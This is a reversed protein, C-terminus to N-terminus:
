EYIEYVTENLVFQVNRGLSMWALAKPNAKLFAFYEPSDFQIRVRKATPKKQVQTDIWQNNNLFFARGGVFRNQATMGQAPKGALEAVRLSAVGPAIALSRGAAPAAPAAALSRGAEEAGLQIDALGDASKLRYLSRAGDVARDGTRERAFSDYAALYEQQARVQNEFHFTQVNQALGRRQEDEMILYTTYPTVIGYKRALETVEEKLEKNEGRLRIEDLLYGVRRTAWLRPIFEHDSAEGPFNADYAFSKSEGDVSGELRIAGSGKASYRGVVVLQEGKFVDPITSPYIRTVRVSEPFLLKPSALVPEKIKTFFSSVKVEIDEQPLVYQSFARTEEAVRDLLHTNVDTGIGFCFVRTNEKNAKEVNQIIQAEDTVGVTPRGDTLFVIVCPRDSKEPRIELAKRLADDIATGGIPKLEDIWKKARSRNDPTADSLKSYLSEVETAFRLVDFRDGASLNEVCFLLAKKAQELKAGAMSGSTDLVFVVDKPIVKTDKIEAGPSALLVFYGDEGGEKFSMLHLGIDSKDLDYFLQFDADPKVDSAEFGITAENGGRRKIEVKHSPSYVSKLPQKTELDIKLSLNKIPKASFKETNLPLVFNVLGSDSKLLQSYSLLIRKKSHPEIPFIRVKFLDRGAFELLAPDKLKRVIDEYIGRAKDAALLEAEVQKGNIEMSFKNVHAGKPVPFLFTGELQRSNPNYFEQDVTTTAIQDRIKVDAKTSNLELPATAPPPVPRPPPLIRPPPHYREPPWPMWFDPDHVIILGSGFCPAISLLALCLCAIRKM